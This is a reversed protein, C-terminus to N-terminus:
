YLSELNKKNLATMYNVASETTINYDNTYGL